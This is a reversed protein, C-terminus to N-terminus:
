FWSSYPDQRSAIRGEGRGITLANFAAPNATANLLPVFPRCVTIGLSM